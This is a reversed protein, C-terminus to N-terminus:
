YLDNLVLDDLATSSSRNRKVTIFWLSALSLIGVM